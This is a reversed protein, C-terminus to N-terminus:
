DLDAGDAAEFMEDLVPVARLAAVVLYERRGVHDLEQLPSRDLRQLRNQAGVLDADAGLDLNLM